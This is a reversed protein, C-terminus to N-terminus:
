AEEEAVRVRPDLWSYLLDALATSLLVTITTVLLIGQIVPYDRRAISQNLLLGIGQYVFVQEILISGSVAFGLSIALGTVLPLSANRGVYAHMIRLDSLGRARAVTVYDDGLTSLTSSRMALTWSGLTSLVYVAGPILLHKFLDAFFPLSFGPRIGPSLSGRMHDLPILQWQVGVLLVCLVATLIPPVADLTASITTLTHDLWSGRQYAAVMGLFMGLGFSVLLSIGVSFLTWPLRQLVIERVSKGPALVFSEGLEGRALNSMFDLYQASLPQNLDIRLLRAARSRAQEESMGQNILNQVFIDVPNGPLARIILFTLTVVIWLILATKLLSRGITNILSHAIM